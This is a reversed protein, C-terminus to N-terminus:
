GVATALTQARELLDGSTRTHEDLMMQAFARM